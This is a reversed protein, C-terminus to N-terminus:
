NKSVVLEVVYEDAETKEGSTPEPTVKNILINYGEFNNSVTGMSSKKIKFELSQKKSPVAADIYLKVQGEWICNVNVPCRSDEPIGTLTLQLDGDVQKIIENIKVSTPNNLTFSESKIKLKNNCSFTFCGILLIALYSYKMM